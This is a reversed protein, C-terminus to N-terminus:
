GYRGAFHADFRYSNVRRGVAVAQMHAEGIFGDADTRWGAAIGVEIDAFMMAAASIVLASAM